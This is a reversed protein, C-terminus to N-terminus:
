AAGGFLRNWVGAWTGYWWDLAGRLVDFPTAGVALSSVTLVTAVAAVAALFILFDQVGVPLARLRDTLSDLPTM